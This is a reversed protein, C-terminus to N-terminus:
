NWNKGSGGTKIKESNLISNFNNKVRLINIRLVGNKAQRSYGNVSRIEYVAPKSGRVKTGRKVVKPYLGYEIAEANPLNNTLYYFKGNSVAKEVQEGVNKLPDRRATKLVRKIPSNASAFWNSRFRGTDVPSAQITSITIENLSIEFVEKVDLKLQKAYDNIAKSLDDM